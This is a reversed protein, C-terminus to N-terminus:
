HVSTAGICGPQTHLSQWGTATCSCYLLDLVALGDFTCCCHERTTPMNGMPWYCMSEGFVWVFLLTHVVGKCGVFMLFCIQKFM